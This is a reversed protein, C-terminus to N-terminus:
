SLIDIEWAPWSNVKWIYYSYQYRAASLQAELGQIEEKCIDVSRFLYRFPLWDIAHTLNSM